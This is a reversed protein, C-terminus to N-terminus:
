IANEIVMTVDHDLSRVARGLDPVGFGYRRLLIRKELGTSMADTWEASHVMLARVTEPWLKPYEAWIQAAMRAALASAGSTEGTVTFPREEPRRFTTLQGLDDIFIAEGNTPEAAFNGGEMVLDPKLPWDHHWAVSTRSSPSLDGVPAIATWNRFDPDTIM